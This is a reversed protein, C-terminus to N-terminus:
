TIECFVNFSAKTIITHFTDISHINKQLKAMVIKDNNNHFSLFSKFVKNSVINWNTQAFNLFQDNFNYLM